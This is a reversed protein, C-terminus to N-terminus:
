DVNKLVWEDIQGAIELSNKELMMMHGNGFMGRDQLQIHDVQVGAQRLFKVTCHDFYAHYSAEGTMVMVPMKALNVLQRAPETQLNCVMLGPSDAVAEVLVAMDTAASAAPEYTMETATAGWVHGKSAAGRLSGFPPGSPEVALIAKVLEPREDAILWGFSGSQSHTLVIAPGIKDLLAAGALRNRLSTTEDSAVSEVQSAYFADFVADGQRGKDPGDGPWQSHLKAQPWAASTASATLQTEAQAVSMVRTPGDGPHWASRGRMPQDLMYVIYGQGVFFDAWGMRGDPTQLWCASTQGAGHILVLPYPRRVEHPVLVEVYAQGSMVQDTPTGGYTGGVYFNGRAKVASQDIVPVPLESQIM